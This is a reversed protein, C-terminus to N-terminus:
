KILCIFLELILSFSIFALIEFSFFLSVFVVSEPMSESNFDPFSYSERLIASYSNNLLRFYFLLLLLMLWFYM